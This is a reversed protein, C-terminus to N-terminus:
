CASRVLSQRASMFSVISDVFKHIPVSCRIFFIVVLALDFEAVVFDGLAGGLKPFQCTM